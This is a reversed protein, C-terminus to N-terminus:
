VSFPFIKEKGGKKEKIPNLFTISNFRIPSAKKERRKKGGGQSSGGGGRTLPGLFSLSKTQLLAKKERGKRGGICIKSCFRLLGRGSVGRRRERKKKGKKESAGRRGGEM